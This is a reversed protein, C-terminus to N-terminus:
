PVQFLADQQRETQLGRGADGTKATKPKCSFTRAQRSQSGMEPAGKQRRKQLPTQLPRFTPNLLRTNLGKDPMLSGTVKYGLNKLSSALDEALMIDDEVILIRTTAAAESEYTM